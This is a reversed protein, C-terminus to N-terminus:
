KQILRANKDGYEESISPARLLRLDVELIAANHQDGGDDSSKLRDIHQQFRALVRQFVEEANLGDAFGLDIESDCEFFIDAMIPQFTFNDSYGFYALCGKDVFSPGLGAATECSLFHVIKGKCEKVNLNGTNFISNLNDGTYNNPFGHGVGTFYLVKPKRAQPLVETRRAQVGQRRVITFGKKEMQPYVNAERYEFPARTVPDFNADIALVVPNETTTVKKPPPKKKPPM